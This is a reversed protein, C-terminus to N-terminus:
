TPGAGPPGCCRRTGGGGPSRPTTARACCRPCTWGASSPPKTYVPAELLGDAHSEEVCRTRTASARRAAAPRGGRPDGTRGGRRRLPRLRRALDRAGPGPDAAHELVREDIGEYRGCAFVLHAERPWSTHWAGAHVAGRGPEARGAAGGDPLVADLAEGWPEPRMVMGPGGGYPTDDVTRHVDHTWERLDHVRSTSSARPGRRVSCRSTWRRSTSRFSRSSTSACSEGLTACLDFRLPRLPGRAPDDRGPRRRVDVEPVIARVFPVLGQRGDPLRLVLLDSAPAHEVRVM